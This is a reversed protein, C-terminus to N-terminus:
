KPSSIELFLSENYDLIGSYVHVTVKCEVWVGGGKNGHDKVSQRSECLHTTM